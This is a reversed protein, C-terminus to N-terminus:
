RVRPQWANISPSTGPAMSAGDVPHGAGAADVTWLQHTNSQFAIEFGGTPLATIDPNSAQDMLLGTPHGVFSNDVTWLMGTNAQFVAEFRGDSGVALAPSTGPMLRLATNFPEKTVAPDINTADQLDDTSSNSLEDSTVQAIRLNGDANAWAAKFTDLRRTVVNGTRGRGVAISTGPAVTCEPDPARCPLTVPLFRFDGSPVPQHVFGTGEAYVGFAGGAPSNDPSGTEAGADGTPDAGPRPIDGIHGTNSRFSVQPLDTGEALSISPSSGPALRAKEPHGQLLFDVTWLVGTNAQVATWTGGNPRQVIDPSTGPLMGLNIKHITGNPTVTRLLNDGGQYAIDAGGTETAYASETLSPLLL